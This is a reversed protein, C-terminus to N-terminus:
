LSSLAVWMLGSLSAVHLLLHGGALGQDLGQHGFTDLLDEADDPRGEHVTQVEKGRGADAENGHGVLLRRGV